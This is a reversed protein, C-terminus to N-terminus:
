YQNINVTEWYSQAISIGQKSAEYRLNQMDRQKQKFGAIRSATFSGYKDHSTYGTGTQQNVADVIYTYETKLQQEMGRYTNEYYNSWNSNDAGVDGGIFSSNNGTNGSYDLNPEYAVNNFDITSFDVNINKMINDISSINNLEQQAQWVFNLSNSTMASTRLADAVGSSYPVVPMPYYPYAYMPIPASFSIANEIVEKFFQGWFSQKSSTNTQEASKSETTNDARAVQQRALSEEERDNIFTKLKELYNKQADTNGMELGDRMIIATELESFRNGIIEMLLSYCLDEAESNGSLIIRRLFYLSSPYDKEKCFLLAYTMLDQSPVNKLNLFAARSNDDLKEVVSFLSDAPSSIFNQVLKIYDEKNTCKNLLDKFYDSYMTKIDFEFEPFRSTIKAAFDTSLGDKGLGSYYAADYVAIQPNFLWSDSDTLLELLHKDPSTAAKSIYALGLDKNIPLCGKRDSPVPDSIGEGNTDFCGFCYYHGLQYNAINSFSNFEVASKFSSLAQETMGKEVYSLALRVMENSKQEDQTSSDPIDLSTFRGIPIVYSVESPVLLRAGPIIATGKNSEILSSKSINYTDAISASSEGYKVIHTYCIPYRTNSGQKYSPINIKLGTFFYKELNPNAAILVSSPIDYKSAISNITEGRSIIHTNNQAYTLCPFICLCFIISTIKIIRKM